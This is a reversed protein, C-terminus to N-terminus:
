IEDAGRDGDDFPAEAFRSGRVGDLRQVAALVKAPLAKQSVIMLDAKRRQRLPAVSPAGGPVGGPVPVLEEAAHALLSAQAAESHTAAAAPGGAATVLLVAGAALSIGGALLPRRAPASRGAPPNWPLGATARRVAEGDWRDRGAAYGASGGIM